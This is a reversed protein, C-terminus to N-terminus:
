RVFLQIPLDHGGIAPSPRTSAHEDKIGKLIIPLPKTKSNLKVVKFKIIARVKQMINKVEKM